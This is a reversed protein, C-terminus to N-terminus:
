ATVQGKSAGDIYIQGTRQCLSATQGRASGPCFIAGAAVRYSGATASRYGFPPWLILLHRILRIM